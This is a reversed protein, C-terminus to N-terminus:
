AETLADDTEDVAQRGEEQDTDEDAAQQPTGGGLQRWAEGDLYIIEIKVDGSPQQEAVTDDQPSSGDESM